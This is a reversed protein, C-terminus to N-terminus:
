PRWAVSVFFSRGASNFGFAPEYDEDALNEGRLELQWRDAFVWGARLNLLAYSDLTIGGFDLREGSWFGELGAWSGNAFHYDLSVSAKEDPRRLLSDGTARDETDQFTANANLAWAGRALSYALELGELRAEDINIAGFNPGNFAILDEVDTRYLYASFRGADPHTWRLGLEGSASSEPDLDPNGAFLGGFGPSYQESLNPGRFATGYSGLLEWRDTLAYGLAMQGTFKGGFRSNDDYRGGLQLHVRDFRRDFSAFAAANHRTRDWSSDSAGTERYYDVGFSLSGGQGTQLQNQWGLEWRRSDFDTTFYGFDSFLEDRIFGGTVQYDWDASFAGQYELSGIVQRSDSIGQDFESESDFALVSYRLRNQGWDTAGKVGLNFNRYGDDDPDFSFGGQNQASFGDVDRYGANVSIRSNEGEYGLGAEVAATGYSGGTVRAYPAPDGRTFVHIVGGISDSGYLSGRPGRVIEIREVQNIPLQEWVYAGTNASSVRVGDILVLVHNSNSGRLFVSTQAGAGGTRVIDVGPQLRLLELLDEATSLEIDDRTIVSVSALTEGLVETMRSPTVVLNPELQYPESDEAQAPGAVIWAALLWAPPLYSIKM